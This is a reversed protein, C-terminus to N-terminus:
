TFGKRELILRKIVQQLMNKNDFEDEHYAFNSFNDKGGKITSSFEPLRNSANNKDERVKNALAHGRKARSQTGQDGVPVESM